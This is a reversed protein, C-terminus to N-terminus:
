RKTYTITDGLRGIIVTTNGDVTGSVSISDGNDIYTLTISPHSYIYTGSISGGFEVLTWTTATTFSLTATSGDITTVWVTDVLGDPSTIDKKCGVSFLISLIILIM